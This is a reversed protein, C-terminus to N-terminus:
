YRNPPIYLEVFSNTSFIKKINGSLDTINVDFGNNIGNPQAFIIQKGDPLWLFIGTFSPRKHINVDILHSINLTEPSFLLISKEKDDYYAINKSDSSWAYCKILFSIDFKETVDIEQPNDSNRFKFFNDVSKEYVIFEFKGNPSICISRRDSKNIEGNPQLTELNIGVGDVFISSNNKGWNVRGILNFQPDQNLKVLNTGDSNIIYYNGSLKRDDLMEFLLIKSGDSSWKQRVEYSTKYALTISSSDIDIIYLGSENQTENQYNGYFSFKKSDPSWSKIDPPIVFLTYFSPLRPIRTPSM